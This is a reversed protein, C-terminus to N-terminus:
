HCRNSPLCKQLSGVFLEEFLLGFTKIFIDRYLIEKRKEREIERLCKFM